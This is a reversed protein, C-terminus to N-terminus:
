RLYPTGVRYSVRVIKILYSENGGGKGEGM